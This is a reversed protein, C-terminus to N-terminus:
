IGSAMKCRDISFCTPAFIAPAQLVDQGALQKAVGRLSNGREIILTYGGPAINLPTALYDQLWLYTSSLALAVVLFGILSQKM